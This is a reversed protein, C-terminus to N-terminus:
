ESEGRVYAFYVVIAVYLFVLGMVVEYTQPVIYQQQVGQKAGIAVNLLGFAVLSAIWLGDFKTITNM